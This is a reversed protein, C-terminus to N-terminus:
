RATTVPVITFGAMPRTEPGDHYMDMYVDVAAAGPCTVQYHDVTNGYVGAGVNGKRAFAPAEGGPCRLRALYAREGTPMNERIPNKSSGLPHVEANAIAVELKKGSLGELGLQRVLDRGANPREQAAAPAAALSGLAALVLLPKLSM